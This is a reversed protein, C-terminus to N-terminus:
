CRALFDEFKERTSHNGYNRHYDKHCMECLTVGNGTDTRLEKNDAYSEIHHANLRGGRKFCKQCIYDDRVYIANRWESYGQFNRGQMRDEDTIGTKWSPSLPGTQKKGLNSIMEKQLCGCSRIQGQKLHNASAHVINGCDCSCLFMVGGCSTRKNSLGTVILRGFRMGTLDRIPHQLCGCSKTRGSILNSALVLSFSGCVCKTEWLIHGGSRADTPRIVVLNGFKIGTLDQMLINGSEATHANVFMSPFTNM